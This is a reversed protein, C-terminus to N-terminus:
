RVQASLFGPVTIGSPTVTVVVSGPGTRLAVTPPNGNLGPSLKASGGAGTSLNVWHVPTSPTCGWRDKDGGTITITGPTEGVVGACHIPPVDFSGNPNGFPAPPIQFAITTAAGAPGAGTIALCGAAIAAAGAPLVRKVRM